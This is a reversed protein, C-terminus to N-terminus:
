RSPHRSAGAAKMERFKAAATPYDAGLNVQRGGHWVYWRRNGARFWLRCRGDEPLRDTAEEDCPHFDFIDPWEPANKTHWERHHIGCLWRVDLWRSPHYSDHHAQGADGCVECPERTLGGEALAKKVANHARGQLHYARNDMPPM